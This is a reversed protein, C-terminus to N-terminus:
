RLLSRVAKGLVEAREAPTALQEVGFGLLVTDNTSVAASSLLSQSRQFFGGGPGTGAPPGPLTWAGLGTEFGEAETVAGGVVIATDDVFAGVGGTAPDTVYSISVEVQKGAYASLDFSVQQWGGSDGTFANWQGSTGSNTCPDGLTLYHSLFPHEQILFGQECDAPVANTTRGGADPLTTWDDAGVTHAVVIVHDSDVETDYSLKAQLKPAQAATVGTLDVTRSLRTYSDDAHLVGVYWTGEVPDFPGPAGGTYVGSSASTFQPFQAPPLVDSTVVFKGAEDLPNDAVAPGGFGGDAGNLRDTGVFGTPGETASRDYAGLYYQSFDNSLLLCDGDPDFTVVCEAGPNGNLGYYLSSGRLGYYSATEGTHVLKGGENLYDRVSM